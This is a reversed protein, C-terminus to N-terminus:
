GLVVEPKAQNGAAGYVAALAGSADLVRFPGADPAGPLAARPFPTGHRVGRLVDDAVTVAPLDRLAAAPPLLASPLGGAGALATLKDIVQAEEVRLSGIATRRLATLHAAGGLAGAVDAALSRVYTGKGCRVRLTVEPYDSPAFDVLELDHVAVPRPERAVETGERALEYLRRGGVKLASVMPPVQLITGTFRPLVDRVDAEDVPMPERSLVAGDADLSDTAVGFQATAVYTKPLDQVFRVLRTTRGLALVLLGTAMPDLTGAHGAKRQGALGRVKAVVDHSTWGQDKDVLLFGEPPAARSPEPM